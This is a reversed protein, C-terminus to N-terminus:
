IMIMCIIKIGVFGVFVKENEYGMIGTILEDIRLEM